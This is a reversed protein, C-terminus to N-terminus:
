IYFIKKKNTKKTEPGQVYNSIETIVSGNNQM